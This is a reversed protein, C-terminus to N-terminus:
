VTEKFFANLINIRLQFNTKSEPVVSSSKTMKTLRQIEKAVYENGKALVKEAIAVYLKGNEAAKDSLGAVIDKINKVTTADINANFTIFKDIDAIRGADPLLGGDAMRLTGANTNIFNVMDDLERAGDYSEPESSGPAFFKLTPYGSVGYKTGLGQEETADVKAIIVEKDGAFVSALQEYKPALSKCHGCWPAYFEVLVHKKSTLVVSEFNQETLVTVSTPASKLKRNLGVKSNVWSIITDATRGGSYEEATTKGKPFYKITPFGKIGFKEGMKPNATADIAAIVIDDGPQFTDGAIKWEPALNKCHGCWPAYFEVLVNSSGDVVKDFDADTLNLVDALVAAQLIAFFIFISKFFNSTTM